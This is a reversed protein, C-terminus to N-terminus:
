SKLSLLDDASITVLGNETPLLPGGPERTRIGPLMSRGRGNQVVFVASPSGVPVYLEGFGQLGQRATRPNADLFFVYEDGVNLKAYGEVAMRDLDPWVVTLSKAAQAPRAGELVFNYLVVPVQVVAEPNGADDVTRAVVGSVRGRAIVDADQAAGALDQYTKESVSAQQPRPAAQSCGSLGLALLFLGMVSLRLVRGTGSLISKM